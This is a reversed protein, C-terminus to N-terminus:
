KKKININKFRNNTDRISESISPKNWLLKTSYFSAYLPDTYHDNKHRQLYREKREDDHHITYDSAGKQGFHITKTDDIIAMYKKDLKNSSKIVINLVM